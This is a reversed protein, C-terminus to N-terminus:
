KSGKKSKRIQSNQWDSISRSYMYKLKGINVRQGQPVPHKVGLATNLEEFAQWDAVPYSVADHYIECPWVGITQHVHDIKRRLNMTGNDITTWHMDRRCITGGAVNFMGNTEKYTGKLSPEIEILYESEAYLADRLKQAWAKLWQSSTASTWSDYVMPEIGRERLYVMVPTTVWTLGRGDKHRIIPPGDLSEPGSAAILWFGAREPDFPVRPRQIPEGWGYRAGAMSALFQARTDYTVIRPESGSKEFAALQRTWIMHGAGHLEVPASDWRWHPQGDDPSEGLEPLTLQRAAREALNTRISSCGSVGATMRWVVGTVSAYSILRRVITDANATLEFLTTKSQEMHTLVGMYIRRGTAAHRFTAWGNDRVKGEDGTMIWGARAAAAEMAAWRTALSTTEGTNEEDGGGPLVPVLLLGERQDDFARGIDALLAGADYFAGPAIVGYGKIAGETNAFYTEGGTMVCINWPGSPGVTISPTHLTREKRPPSALPDPLTFAQGERPKWRM